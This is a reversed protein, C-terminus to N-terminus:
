KVYKVYICSGNVVVTVEDNRSSHDNSYSNEVSFVMQEDFGSGIWLGYGDDVYDYVKFQKFEDYNDASEYIIYKYKSNTNSILDDLTIVSEDAEKEEKLHSQLKNYGLIVVSVTDSSSKSLNDNLVSIVKKFGSTYEKINDEDTFKEKSIANLVVVKNNRCCSITKLFNGIFTSLIKPSSSTMVSVLNSFDYYGIQASKENIGLPVNSLDTIYNKVMDFTVSRPVLPIPEAPNKLFRNLQEFVYALNKSYDSEKFVLATQFEYPEDIEIVGRGANKNPIPSNAFYVSFDSQDTMNLMIKQPFNNEAMFGLSSTASCSVLFYIGYKSCNRTMTVFFSDYIDEYVEKFVDIDNIVIIINNFISKGNNIDSIFSGGNKSYYKQRNSIESNIMYFLNNIKDKDSVSLVDGVQPANQFIRLKESGCDIIYFNVEDCNHNIVNSYIFTSLLTTRGSGVSGIVCINGNNVDLLVPGQKQNKPDDYEGILPSILYPRARYSYKNVLNNLYITSPINDLWLQQKKFGKEDAVKIIYNLINTLEDGRSDHVAKKEEKKSASKIVEGIDNIFSISNDVKVNYTESPVYSNGTYASQGEIFYEDYGVQLYFRGADKLFAADPKKIVENSDETTQVKCSIKFKSNSWIQDDVIGSPKQTALILHVGLSRGIRAASVLEDMFDPQQAKLEAFEDCIIFLHSLTQSVKGERYLKQYKYIDINGSELNEKAENFLRQRRQLESKISVLTRKMESTDLNTITGVLHPLKMGTKRNEFAGALGGGKYDILVFQVEDPRYNISLSLIFTIILESKGSGTMGAILGHPGHAKEHLDLNLINGNQDIGLPTALSNYLNSNEWRLPVNLQEINGINYMELFDYNDPLSLNSNSTNKLPIDCLLNICHNFNNNFYEPKFKKINSSSMNTQFYAGEEKSINVFNICKNPIDSIKTDFMLLGFNYKEDSDIIDDIINVNRYMDTCDSIILYYPLNDNSDKSKRLNLERELVTSITQAENIDTAFYRVDRDDNWCHNLNKLCNLNSMKSTFVVIKLDLYSHYTLIQLLINNMYSLFLSNDIIFACAKTEKLSLLYPSDDFYEYKDILKELDTVLPDKELVFEQKKYDLTCSLKVKGTGLRLNLFNNSDINRSYLENKRQEIISVCESVDPNNISLSIKQENVAKEFLLEKDKLYLHYKKVRNKNKIITKINRVWKEVFPWMIGGILISIAMLLETFLEDFDTSGNRYNRVSSIVAVLSAMSMLFTPVTTMFVSDDDKEEKTPPDSIDIKLEDPSHQFVPKKFFYNKEDYFDNFNNYNNEVNGVAIYENGIDSLYKSNISVFKNINNIYLSNNCVVIKLGNIFVRDFNNLSSSIVKKNNVFISAKSSINNISFKGNFSIEIQGDIGYYTIDNGAANGIKISSNDNIVKKVFTNDNLLSVYLVVQEGGVIKLVYFKGIILEAKDLENNEFYIKVKSNSSIYAKGSTCEINVLSRENSNSDYDSLIYKGDVNNLDFTHIYDNHILYIQM